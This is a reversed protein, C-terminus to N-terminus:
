ELGEVLMVRYNAGKLRHTKAEQYAPSHYWARAAEMNPFQLLVVGEADQGELVEIDGYAVLATLPHDGRAKGAMESYTDMEQQDITNDRIFIAYATM